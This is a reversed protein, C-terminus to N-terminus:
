QFYRVKPTVNEIIGLGKCCKIAMGDNKKYITVGYKEGVREWSNNEKFDASTTLDDGQEDNAFAVLDDFGRQVLDNIEM